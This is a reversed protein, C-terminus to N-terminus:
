KSAPPLNMPLETLLVRGKGQPMPQNLGLLLLLRNSASEFWLEPRAVFRGRVNAYPHLDDFKLPSGKLLHGGSNALWLHTQMKQELLKDSGDEGFEDTLQWIQQQREMSEVSDPALPYEKVIYEHFIRFKEKMETTAHAEFVASVNEMGGPRVLLLTYISGQNPVPTSNFLDALLLGKANEIALTQAGGKPNFLVLQQHEADYACLQAKGASDQGATVSVLRSGPHVFEPFPSVPDAAGPAPILQLRPNGDAVVVVESGTGTLDWSALCADAARDPDLRALAQCKKSQWDFACIDGNKQVLVVQRPKGAHLRAIVAGGALYPDISAPYGSLAKGSSDFLSIFSRLDDKTQEEGFLILETKGDGNVDEAALPMHLRLARAPADAAPVGALARGQTDFAHLHAQGDLVILEKNGDQNLDLVATYYGSYIQLDKMPSFPLQKGALDFLRIETVPGREKDSWAKTVFGYALRNQDLPWFFPATHVAHELDHQEIQKM